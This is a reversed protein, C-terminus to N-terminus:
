CVNCYGPPKSRGSMQLSKESCNYERETERDLQSEQELHDLRETKVEIVSRITKVVESLRENIMEGTIVRSRNNAKSFPNLLYAGDINIAAVPCGRLDKRANKEFRFYTYGINPKSQMVKFKTVTELRM